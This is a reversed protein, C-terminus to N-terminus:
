SREPDPAEDAEPFDAPLVDFTLGDYGLNVGDPLLADAEAHLINHTMHILYTQRAGIRQAMQTAAEITFHTRHPEHRLGDLVLVDLGRLRALSHDPINNTDTVYAFRGVRYGLVPMAGHFADVPEVRVTEGTEYRSEVAFPGDVEVLALKPVGPYTRDVFIYNYMRRLVAATAPLTYCPIARENGFFYPRLDDLGAVHDFHHHTILVADIREIGARLAQQRFDPGVDVVLHLGNV